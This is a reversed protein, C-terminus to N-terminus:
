KRKRKKIAHVGNKHTMSNEYSNWRDLKSTLHIGPLCMDKGLKAFLTGLYNVQDINEKLTEIAREHDRIKNVTIEDSDSVQTTFGGEDSSLRAIQENRWDINTSLQCVTEACVDMQKEIFYVMAPKKGEFTMSLQAPINDWMFCYESAIEESIKKGDNAKITDADEVMKTFIPKAMISKEKPNGNFMTVSSNATDPKTNQQKTM